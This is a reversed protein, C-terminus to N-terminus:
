LNVQRKRNVGIAIKLPKDYTKFAPRSELTEIAKAIDPVVLSTHNKGGWTSPNPLEGYLM